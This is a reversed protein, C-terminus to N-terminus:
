VQEGRSRGSPRSHNFRVATFRHIGALLSPIGGKAVVAQVNKIQKTDEPAENKLVLRKVDHQNQALIICLICSISL